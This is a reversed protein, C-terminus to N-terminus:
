KFRLLTSNIGTKRFVAVAMLVNLLINNIAAAIAAGNIGLPPILIFALVTTLLACSFLLRLATKQHGTMTLLYGVSGTGFNVAQSVTLIVLAWKGETFEDGFFRLFFDPYILCALIVPLSILFGMRLSGTIVQQLQETKKEAYLKSIIPALVVNMAFLMYGELDSIRSAVAFVGTEKAGRLSGLAIIQLQSLYFYVGNVLLLDLATKTWRENEYAPTEGKIASVVYREVFYNGVLLALVISAASLLIVSWVTLAERWIFYLFIVSVLFVAPRVVKDPVQSLINFHESRLWAFRLNILATVPLVPLALWLGKRLMEDGPQKSLWSLAFLLVSAIVSVTLVRKMSFRFLGRILDSRGAARYSPVEKLALQEFGLCSFTALLNVWSFGYSFTGYAAAGLLNTVLLSIALAVLLSFVQIAFVIIIDRLHKQDVQQKIFQTVSSIM